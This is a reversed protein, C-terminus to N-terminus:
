AIIEHSEIQEDSYDTDSDFDSNTVSFTYNSDYEDPNNSQGRIVINHATMSERAANALVSKAVEDLSYVRCFCKALEEPDDNDRIKIHGIRALGLKVDVYLKPPGRSKTLKEQQRKDTNFSFPKPGDVLLQRSRQYREDSVYQNKENELQLKEKDIRANTIRQVNKDFDKALPVAGPKLESRLKRSPIVPAFTCDKLENTLANAMDITPKPKDKLSYLRDHVPISKISRTQSNSAVTDNDNDNDDIISNESFVLNKAKNTIEPHFSCEALQNDEVKKKLQNFKMQSLQHRAYMLDTSSHDNLDITIVEKLQKIDDQEKKKALKRSIKNIKPTFVSTTPENIPQTNQIYSLIDQFFSKLVFINDKNDWSNSQTSSTIADTWAM